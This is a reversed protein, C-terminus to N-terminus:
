RPLQSAAIAAEVLDDHVRVNSQRDTRVLVVRVGKADSAASLETPLADAREVTRTPLGHVAALAALDIGHPTGFLREFRADDLLFLCDM